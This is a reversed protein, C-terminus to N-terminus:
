PSSSPGPRNKRVRDACRLDEESKEIRERKKKNKKKTLM